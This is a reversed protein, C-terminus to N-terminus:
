KIREICGKWSRATDESDVFLAFDCATDIDEFHTAKELPSPTAKVPFMTDPEHEFRAYKGPEDPWRLVFKM